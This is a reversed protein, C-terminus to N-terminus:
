PHHYVAGWRSDGTMDLEGDFRFGVIIRSVQKLQIETDTRHCSSHSERNLSPLNAPIRVRRKMRSAHKSSYTLPNQSVLKM